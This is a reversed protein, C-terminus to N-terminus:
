ISDLNNDAGIFDMMESDIKTLLSDTIIFESGKINVDWLSPLDHTVTVHDVM